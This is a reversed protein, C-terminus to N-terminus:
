EIGNGNGTMRGNHKESEKARANGTVRGNTQMVSKGGRENQKTAFNRTYAKKM